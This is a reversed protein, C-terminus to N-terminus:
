KKLYVTQEKKERCGEAIGMIHIKTIKKKIISWLDCLSEEIRKM